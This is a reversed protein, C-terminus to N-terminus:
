TRMVKPVSECVRRTSRCNSSSRHSSCRDVAGRVFGADLQLQIEVAASLRVNVGADAKEIVHELLDRPVPREIEIQDCATVQVHVLVVGDFVHSDRQAFRHLM